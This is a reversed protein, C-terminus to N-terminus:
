ELDPYIKKYRKHLSKNVKKGLEKADEETLESKAAINNMISIESMKKRISDRIVKSWDIFHIKKMDKKLDDPIKVKLDSM